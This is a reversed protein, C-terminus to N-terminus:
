SDAGLGEILALADDVTKYEVVTEVIPADAQYTGTSILKEVLGDANIFVVYIFLTASEDEGPKLTLIIEGNAQKVYGRFANADLSNKLSYLNLFDQPLAQITDEFAKGEADTVFSVGSTLGSPLHNQTSITSGAVTNTEIIGSAEAAAISAEIAETFEAQDRLIVNDDQLALLEESTMALYDVVVPEAGEDSSNSGNSTDSTSTESPAATEQVDSGSTTCGALTLAAILALGTLALKKNEM